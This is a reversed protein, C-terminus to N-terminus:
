IEKGDRLAPLGELVRSRRESLADIRSQDYEGLLGRGSKSGLAGDEVLLELRTPPETARSLEAFLNRASALHVDLGALDVTQFPGIAAWRAGLGHTLVRDIDEPTCVGQDVLAYAERLLAYQLRNAAFGPTDRVVVPAKGLMEMWERLSAVVEPDTREARVVEVLEVLEPANFWHLGAFREPRALPQALSALSISSTNTVVIAAPGSLAEARVLLRRKPEPEESITEVVLDAGTLADDLTTTGSIRGADHPSIEAARRLGNTVSAERRATLVVECGGRAFVAAIGGGM